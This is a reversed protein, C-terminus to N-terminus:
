KYQGIRVEDFHAKIGDQSPSWVGLRVTFDKSKLEEADEPKYSGLRLGDVYFIVDIEPDIEIRFTHWVDYDTTKKVSSFEIGGVDERYVECWTKIIPSRGIGCWFIVDRNKKDKTTLFFSIDGDQGVRDSSLLMKSEAFNYQNSDIKKTAELPLYKGSNPAISFELIGEQQKIYSPSRADGDPKWLDTNIKGEFASDNFNDYIMLDPTPTFVSTPPLIVDPSPSPSLVTNGRFRNGLLVIGTVAVAFIALLAVTRIWVSLRLVFRSITHLSKSEEVLPSYSLYIL